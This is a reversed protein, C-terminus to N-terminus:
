VKPALQVATNSRMRKQAAAHGLGQSENFADQVGYTNRSPEWLKTLEQESHM